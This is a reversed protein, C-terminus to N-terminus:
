LELEINVSNGNILFVLTGVDGRLLFGRAQEENIKSEDLGIWGRFLQGPLVALHDVGDPTPCWQRGFRLQLVDLPFDKVTVSRPRYASLRVDACEMADNRLTVYCKLPYTLKRDSDIDPISVSVRTVHPTLKRQKTYRAVSVSTVAALVALLASITAVVISFSDSV